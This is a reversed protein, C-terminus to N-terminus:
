RLTLDEIQTGITKLVLKDWPKFGLAGLGASLAASEGPSKMGPKLSFKMSPKLSFKTSPPNGAPLQDREVPFLNAPGAASARSLLRNRDYANSVGCPASSIASITGSEAIGRLISAQGLVTRLGFSCFV